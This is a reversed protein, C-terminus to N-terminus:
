RGLRISLVRLGVHSLCICSPSVSLCVVPWLQYQATIADRPDFYQWHLSSAVKTATAYSCVNTKLWSHLDPHPPCPTCTYICGVTILVLLVCRTAGIILMQRWSSSSGSSRTHAVVWLHLHTIKGTRWEWVLVKCCPARPNVPLRLCTRRYHQLSHYGTVCVTVSSVCFYELVFLGQM